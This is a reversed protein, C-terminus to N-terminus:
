ECGGLLPVLRLRAIEGDCEERTGTFPTHITSTIWNTGPKLPWQEPDSGHARQYDNSVMVGRSLEEAPNSPWWGITITNRGEQNLINWIASALEPGNFTIGREPATRRDPTLCGIERAWKFLTAFVRRFNNKNTHNGNVTRLWADVQATTIDAFPQSGFHDKM